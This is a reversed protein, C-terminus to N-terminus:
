PTGKGAIINDAVLNAQNAPVKQEILAAILAERAKQPGMKKSFDDYLIKYDNTKGQPIKNDASVPTSSDIKIKAKYETQQKEVAEMKAKATRIKQTAKDVEEKTTAKKLADAAEKLEKAAKGYESNPDFSKDNIARQADGNASDAEKKADELNTPINAASMYKKYVDETIAGAKLKDAFEKGSMGIATLGAASLEKTLKYNDASLKEGLKKQTTGFDIKDLANMKGMVVDLEVKTKIKDIEGSIKGARDGHENQFDRQQAEIYKAAPNAGATLAFLGTKGGKSTPFAPVYFPLRAVDKGLKDFYGKIGKVFPDAQTGEMAMFAGMWIFAATAASAIIGQVTSMGSVIAGADAPNTSLIGTPNIQKLQSIMIMGITLILSVQLPAFAHKRFLNIPDKDGLKTKFVEFAMGFFSLPMLAIALWLVVVRVLLAVFLAIFSACYIILFIVSFATNVTLSTLDGLENAKADDIRTIDMLEIAMVLAVNRSNFNSFFDRGADSIQNIIKGDADRKCLLDNTKEPKVKQKTELKQLKSCMKAGFDTWGKEDKSQLSASAMPVAFIATTGVNVVDLVVKCMLFSFNVAILSIVIKPLVGKVSFKDNSGGLINYIAIGLLGLVFLINVFDRVASWVNLLITLMGGSFLLDNGLLGGILILIPWIFAQAVLLVINIFAFLGNEGSVAGALDKKISDLSQAYTVDAHAAVILVLATLGLQLWLKKNKLNIM